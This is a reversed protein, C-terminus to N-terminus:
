ELREKWSQLRAHDTLVYTLPTVTVCREFLAEV